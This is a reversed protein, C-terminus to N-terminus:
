AKIPVAVVGMNVVEWVGSVEKVEAPQRLQASPVSEPEYIFLGKAFQSITFSTLTYFTPVVWHKENCHILLYSGGGKVIQLQTVAFDKGEFVDNSNLKITLEGSIMRRLESHDGRVFADQFKNALAHATDIDPQVSDFVPVPKTTEIKELAANAENQLVQLEDIDVTNQTQHLSLKTKEQVRAIKQVSAVTPMSNEDKHTGISVRSNMNNNKRYRRIIKEWVTEPKTAFINDQVKQSSTTATANQRIVSQLQQDSLQLINRLERWESREAQPIFAETAVYLSIWLPIILVYWEPKPTLRTIWQIGPMLLLIVFFCSALSFLAALISTASVLGNVPMAIFIAFFFYAIKLVQALETRIIALGIPAVLALIAVTGHISDWQKRREIQYAWLHRPDTQAGV